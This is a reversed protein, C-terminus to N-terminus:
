LYGVELSKLPLVQRKRVKETVYYAIKNREVGNLFQSNHEVLGNRIESISEDSPELDLEFEM